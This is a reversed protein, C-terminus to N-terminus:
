AAREKIRAAIWEHVSKEPWAIARVGLKIPPPFTGAAVGAYISSKKLGILREVEPLRILRGSGLAILHESM